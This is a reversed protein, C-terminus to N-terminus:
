QIKKLTIRKVFTGMKLTSVPYTATGEKLAKMKSYKKGTIALRNVTNLYGNQPELKQRELTFDSRVERGGM